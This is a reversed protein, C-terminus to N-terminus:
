AGPSRNTGSHCVFEPPPGPIPTRQSKPLNRRQNGGKCRYENRYPPWPRVIPDPEMRRVRPKLQADPLGGSRAESDKPVADSIGGFFQRAQERDKDHVFDWTVTRQDFSQRVTSTM